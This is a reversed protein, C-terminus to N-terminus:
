WRTNREMMWVEEEWAPSGYESYEYRQWGDSLDIEGAEKVAALLDDGGDKEYRSGDPLTVLVVLHQPRPREYMFGDEPNREYSVPMISAANGCSAGKIKQM